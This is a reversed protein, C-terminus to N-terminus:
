PSEFSFLFQIYTSNKKRLVGPHFGVDFQEHAVRLNCTVSQQTCLRIDNFSYFFIMTKKIFSKTGCKSM